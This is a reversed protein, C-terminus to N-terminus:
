IILWRCRLFNKGIFVSWIKEVGDFGLMNNESLIKLIIELDSEIKM